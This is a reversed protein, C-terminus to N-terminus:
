FIYFINYLHIFYKICITHFNFTLELNEVYVKRKNRFHDSANRCTIDDMTTIEKSAIKSIIAEQKNYGYFKIIANLTM